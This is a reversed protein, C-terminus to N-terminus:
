LCRAQAKPSPRPQQEAGAPALELECGGMIGDKRFILILLMVAALILEQTGAPLALHSSGFTVGAELHRFADIITTVGVVGVVAGALSRMGGVVLMALTLFTLNLFFSNISITGLFHAYLVGALGMVFGSLMFAILRSWYLSIGSAAAAVEDDRTARLALGYSSLQYLYAIMLVVAVCALAFPAGVYLPLGVMSATGM